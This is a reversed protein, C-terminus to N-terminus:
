RHRQGIWPQFADPASQSTADIPHLCELVAHSSPDLDALPLHPLIKWHPPPSPRFREASGLAFVPFQQDVMTPHDSPLIGPPIPNGTSDIGGAVVRSRGRPAVVQFPAPTGLNKLIATTLRIRDFGLISLTPHLVALANVTAIASRIGLVSGSDSATCITAIESFSPIANAKLSEVILPALGELPATDSSRYFLPSPPQSIAISPHEGGADIWLSPHNITIAVNETM